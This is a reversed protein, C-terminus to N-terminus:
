RGAVSSRRRRTVDRTVPVCCIGGYDCSAASGDPRRRSAAPGAAIRMVSPWADPFLGVVLPPTM